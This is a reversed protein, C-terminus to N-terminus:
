IINLYVFREPFCPQKEIFSNMMAFIHSIHPFFGWVPFLTLWAWLLVLLRQSGLRCFTRVAVFPPFAFYIRTQVRHM